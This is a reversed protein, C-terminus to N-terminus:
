NQKINVEKLKSKMNDYNQNLDAEFSRCEHLYCNHYKPALTTIKEWSLLLKDVGFSYGSIGFGNNPCNKLLAESTLSKLNIRFITSDSQYYLYEDKNDFVLNTVSQNQIVVTETKTTLDQVVVNSLSYARKNSIKSYAEVYSGNDLSDLVKGGLNVKITKYTSGGRYYYIATDSYDWHPNFGPTLQTLSDGNSLVKYVYWDLKNFVIWGEKNTEFLSVCNDTIYKRQNTVTNYSWLQHNTLCYIIEQTNKPNYQWQYVCHDTLFSDRPSLQTYIFPMCTFDATDSDVPNNQEPLRDKVIKPDKKCSWFCLLFISLCFLTKVRNFKLFIILFYLPSGLHM